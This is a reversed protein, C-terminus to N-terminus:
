SITEGEATPVIEITTIATEAQGERQTAPDIEQSRDTDHNTKTM